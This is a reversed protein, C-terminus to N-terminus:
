GVSTIFFNGKFFRLENISDYVDALATHSSYKKHQDSLNRNWANCLIKVTTVDLNRYHFYAELEPMYNALFRRDQCITNGCMPSYNRDVHKRLFAIAEKQASEESHESARVRDILGSDGHHAHNWDDMKALTEDDQHIAIVPGDAIISLERDTVVLAMEIIRDTLPNLGTMELDICILNGNSHM